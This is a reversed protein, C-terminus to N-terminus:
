QKNLSINNINGCECRVWSSSLSSIAKLPRTIKLPKSCDSCEVEFTKDFRKM